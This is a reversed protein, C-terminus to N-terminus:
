HRMGQLTDVLVRDASDVRTLGVRPYEMDKIIFFTVSLAAAFLITQFWLIRPGSAMGYGALMAAILAVCYLLVSIVLPPHSRAAVLRTTTIEFVANLASATLSIIAPNNTSLAATTDQKWLENQLQISRLYARHAAPSGVPAQYTDLRAQLYERFVSRLPEQASKPLLDLRLYATGIANAEQTILNERRQFATEADALTFGLLLVILTFVTGNINNIGSNEKGGSGMRRQRGLYYGLRVFVILLVFLAISSIWVRDYADIM